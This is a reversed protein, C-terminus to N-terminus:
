IRTDVDSEDTCNRTVISGLYTFSDVIPIYRNEGVVVDSLDANDYNDSDKYMSPPKLVFLIVSKSDERPKIKGSHVEMGFRTFHSMISDVGKTLHEQSVFLVATDDAYELDLLPFEEGYVRYSRGTLTVDM